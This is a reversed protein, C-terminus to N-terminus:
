AAKLQEKLAELGATLARLQEKVKANEMELQTIRASDHRRPGDEELRRSSPPADIPCTSALSAAGASALELTCEGNTGFVLQPRSGRIHFTTPPPPPPTLPPPPSPCSGVLSGWSYTWSSSSSLTTHILGKNCDSLSSAYYFM